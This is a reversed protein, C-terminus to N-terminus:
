DIVIHSLAPEQEYETGPATSGVADSFSLVRHDPVFADDVIVDFSGTGALGVPRWSQWDIKYDAKPVLHFGAGAQGGARDAVDCRLSEMGSRALRQFVSIAGVASLRGRGVTAKGIPAYSGSIFADPDQGWMEDQAEKPFLGGLWSHVMYLGCVWASSACVKGIAFSTELMASFGM